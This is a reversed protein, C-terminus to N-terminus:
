SLTVGEHQKNIADLIALHGTSKLSSGTFIRGLCDLSEENVDSIVAVFGKMRRPLKALQEQVNIGLSLSIAIEQIPKGRVISSFSSDWGGSTRPTCELIIPGRKSFFVDAKLILSEQSYIGEKELDTIFYQLQGVIEAIERDNRVTPNIHGYEVGSKLSELGIETPLKDLDSNFIRDVMNLFHVEGNIVVTEISAESAFKGDSELLEEVIYEGQRSVGVANELLESMRNKESNSVVEMGKSASLGVPKIIIKGYKALMVDMLSEDEEIENRTYFEPQSIGMKALRKRVAIKNGIERSLSPTIGPLALEQSLVAVTEHCDTAICGVGAIDLKSVKGTRAIKLHGQIDYTDVIDFDDVWPKCAFERNADTIFVKLDLGKLIKCAEVQMPGGGILWFWRDIM